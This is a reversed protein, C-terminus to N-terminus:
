FFKPLKKIEEKVKPAVKDIVKKKFKNRLMRGPLVRVKPDKIPGKITGIVDVNDIRLGFSAKNTQAKSDLKGDRIAFDSRRGKAILKYAILDGNFRADLATRDYIIQALDKQLILKVGATLKGPKFQFKEVTVHANGKKIETDYTLTADANGLLQEPQDVLHLLKPLPVAQVKADLRTGRYQYTITGGLSTSSGSLDIQKGTKIRGSTAFAGNLQTDILPKLKGLDPVNLQFPTELTNGQSAFVVKPLVLTALPSKLAGKGYFTGKKAEGKLILSLQTDLPKDILKKMAEPHTKLRPASLAIRGSLPALGNLDIHADMVGSLYVPQGASALLRGVAVDDGEVKLRDGAYDFMLKKGLGKASGQVRLEKAKTIAGTLTVPVGKGSKGALALPNPIYLRYRTDLKGGQMEFRTKTLTADLLNSVLHTRASLVGKAFTGKSDLKVTVSKPLATGLEKNLTTTHLKGQTLQLTYRGNQTKPSDLTLKGNIQGQAYDPQGVLHLIKALAVKKLDVSVSKTYDLVITGGLSATQARAHMGLADYKIMGSLKLPGHLQNQTVPALEPSDIAIDCAVTEDDINSQGNQVRITILDSLIKGEFTVQEGSLDARVEGKLAAKDPPLTYDYLKRIRVPDFRAHGLQVIARGKSGQKGIAPLLIDANLQGHVIQPQGGLALLEDLPLKRLQVVIEKPIQDQVKLNFSVPGDLLTGKGDLRLDDITGQVHGAINAQRLIYDEYRLHTAKLLYRGNLSRRLIDFGGDFGLSAEKGMVAVFYLHGRTLKFTQLVIPLKTQKQLEHEVYTRIRANGSSSYAYAIVGAVALLVLLVVGLLILILKKM